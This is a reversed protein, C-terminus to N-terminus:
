AAGVTILRAVVLCLLDGEGFDDLLRPAQFTSSTKWDGEWCQVSVRDVDDQFVAQVFPEQGDWQGAAEQSRGDDDRVSMAEQGVDVNRTQSLHQRCCGRAGRDRHFLNSIGETARQGVGFAIDGGHEFM